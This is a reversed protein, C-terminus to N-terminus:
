QGGRSHVAAAKKEAEAVGAQGTLGPVETFYWCIVDLAPGALPEAWDRFLETTVALATTPVAGVHAPREIATGRWIGDALQQLAQESRDIGAVTFGAVALKEAAARGLEGCACAVVAARESM